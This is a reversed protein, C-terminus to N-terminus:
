SFSIKHHMKEETRMQVSQAVISSMISNHILEHGAPSRRIISVVRCNAKWMASMPTVLLM